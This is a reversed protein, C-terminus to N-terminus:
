LHDVNIELNDGKSRRGLRGSSRLRSLGNDEKPPGRERQRATTSSEGDLADLVGGEEEGRTSDSMIVDDSSSACLSSHISLANMAM